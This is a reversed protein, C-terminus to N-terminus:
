PLKWTMTPDTTPRFLYALFATLVSLAVPQFWNGGVMLMRTAAGFIMSVDSLFGYVSSTSPVFFAIAGGVRVLGTAYWVGQSVVSCDVMLPEVLPARLTRQVPCMTNGPQSTVPNPRNTSM